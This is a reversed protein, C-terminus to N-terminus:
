SNPCLELLLLAVPGLTPTNRDKRLAWRDKRLARRDKRLAQRDKRLARRDKRLARRQSSEERLDLLTPGAVCM